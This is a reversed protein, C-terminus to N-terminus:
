VVPTFGSSGLGGYRQSFSIGCHLYIQVCLSVQLPNAFKTPLSKKVLIPSSKQEERSSSSSSTKLKDRASSSSLPNQDQLSCSSSSSKMKALEALLVPALSQVVVELSTPGTTTQVGPPSVPLILLPLGPHLLFPLSPNSFSSSHSFSNNHFSVM